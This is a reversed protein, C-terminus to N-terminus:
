ANQTINSPSRLKTNTISSGRKKKGPTKMSTKAYNSNNIKFFIFYLSSLTRLHYKKNKKAWTSSILKGAIPDIDKLCLNRILKYKIM